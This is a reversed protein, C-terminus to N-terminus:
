LHGGARALALLPKVFAPIKGAAELGEVVDRIACKGCKTLQAGCGCAPAAAGADTAPAPPAPKVDFAVGNMPHMPRNRWPAEAGLAAHVYGGADKGEPVGRATVIFTQDAM